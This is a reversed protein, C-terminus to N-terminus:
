EGELDYFICGTASLNRTTDASAAPAHVPEGDFLTGGTRLGIVRVVGHVDCEISFNARQAGCRAAFISWSTASASRTGCAQFYTTLGNDSLSVITEPAPIPLTAGRTYGPAPPGIDGPRPSPPPPFPGITDASMAKGGL